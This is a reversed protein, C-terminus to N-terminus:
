LNDEISANILEVQKKVSFIIDLSSSVYRDHDEISELMQIDEFWFNEIIDRVRQKGADWINGNVSFKVDVLWKQLHNEVQELIFGTDNAKVRQKAVKTLYYSTEM